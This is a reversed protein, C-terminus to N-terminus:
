IYVVNAGIGVAPYKPSNGFRTYSIIEGFEPPHNDPWKYTDRQITGSSGQNVCPFSPVTDTLIFLCPLLGQEIYFLVPKYHFLLNSYFHNLYFTSFTNLHPFSFM